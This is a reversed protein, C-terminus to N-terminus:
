AFGLVKLLIDRNSRSTFSHRAITDTSFYKTDVWWDEFALGLKADQVDSCLLAYGERQMLERIDQRMVNGFRYADHEITAFKFRLGHKVFNALCALGAGDTDLSLYDVLKSGPYLSSFDVTSCDCQIFKSKRKDYGVMPDNDLCLGTWGKTELLYTNNRFKPDSCGIDLFTGPEGDFLSLVFLDQNAQSYSKPLPAQEVIDM